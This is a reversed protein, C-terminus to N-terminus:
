DWGSWSRFFVVNELHMMNPFSGFYYPNKGKLFNVNVIDNDTMIKKKADEEEEHEGPSIKMSNIFLFLDWATVEHKKKKGEEVEEEEEFIVDTEIKNHLKLISCVQPRTLNYLSYMKTENDDSEDQWFFTIPYDVAFGSECQKKKRKVNVM